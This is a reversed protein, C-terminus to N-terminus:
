RQSRPILFNQGCGTVGSSQLQIQSFHLLALSSTQSLSYASGTHELWMRRRRLSLGQRWHWQLDPSSGACVADKHLNLSPKDGVEGRGDHTGRSPVMPPHVQCCLFSSLISHQTCKTLSTLCFCVPFLILPISCPTSEAFHGKEWVSEPSPWM